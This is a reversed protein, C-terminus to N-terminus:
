LDFEQIPDEFNIREYVFGTSDDEYQGSASQRAEFLDKGISVILGHPWIKDDNAWIFMKNGNM